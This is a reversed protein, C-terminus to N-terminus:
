FPSGVVRVVRIETRSESPGTSTAYRERLAKRVAIEDARPYGSSEILKHDIPRGFENITLQITTQPIDDKNRPVARIHGELLLATAFLIISLGPLLTFPGFLMILGFVPGGDSSDSFNGSHWIAIWLVLFASGVFFLYEKRERAPCKSFFRTTTLAYYFFFTLLGYKLAYYIGFRIPWFESVGNLAEVVYKPLPVIVGLANAFGFSIAGYNMKQHIKSPSSVDFM